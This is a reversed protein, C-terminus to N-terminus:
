VILQIFDLKVDEKRTIVGILSALSLDDIEKSFKTFTRNIAERLFGLLDILHQIRNGSCRTMLSIMIDILINVASSEDNVVKAKKNNLKKKKSLNDEVRAEEVKNMVDRCCLILETVTDALDPVSLLQLSLCSLFQILALSKKVGEKDKIEIPTTGQLFSQINKQLTDLYAIATKM